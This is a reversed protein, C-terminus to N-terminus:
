HTTPLSLPSGATNSTVPRVVPGDIRSESLFDDISPSLLPRSEQQEGVLKTTVTLLPNGESSAKKGPLEKLVM